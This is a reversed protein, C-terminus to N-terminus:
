RRALPRLHSAAAAPRLHRLHVCIVCIIRIVHIVHIRLQSVPLPQKIHAWPGASQSFGSPPLRFVCPPEASGPPQARWSTPM